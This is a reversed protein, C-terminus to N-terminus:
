FWGGAGLSGGWSSFLVGRAVLLGGWSAKPTFRFYYSAALVAGPVLRSGHQLTFSSVVPGSTLIDASGMPPPAQVEGSVMQMSPGLAVTLGNWKFSAAAFAEADFWSYDFQLDQVLYSATSHSYTGRVGLQLGWQENFQAATLGVGLAGGFGPSSAAPSGAETVSREMAEAEVSVRAWHWCLGLSLGGLDFSVHTGAVLTPAQSFSYTLTSSFNKGDPPASILSGVDGRAPLAFTFCAILSALSFGRVPSAYLLQTRRGCTSPKISARGEMRYANSM